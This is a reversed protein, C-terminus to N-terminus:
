IFLIYDDLVFLNIYYLILENNYIKFKVLMLVNEELCEEGNNLKLNVNLDIINILVVGDFWVFLNGGFCSVYM